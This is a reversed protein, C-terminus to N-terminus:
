PHTLVHLSSYPVGDGDDDGDGDGGDGDGDRDDCVYFFRHPVSIEKSLTSARCTYPGLTFM